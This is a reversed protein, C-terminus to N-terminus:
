HKQHINKEKIIYVVVTSIISQYTNFSELWGFDNIYKKRNAVRLMVFIWCSTSLLM